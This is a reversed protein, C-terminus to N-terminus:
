LFLRYYQFSIQNRFSCISLHDKEREDIREFHDKINQPVKLWLLNSSRLTIGSTTGSKMKKRSPRIHHEFNRQHAKGLNGSPSDWPWIFSNPIIIHLHIQHWLESCNQLYQQLKYSAFCSWVKYKSAGEDSYIRSLPVDTIIEWCYKQINKFKIQQSTDTLTLKRFYVKIEYQCVCHHIICNRLLIVLRADDDTPQDM